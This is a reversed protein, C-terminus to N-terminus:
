IVDMFTKEAKNFLIVGLCLILVSSISSYSFYNWNMLGANAGFLAVRFTELLDSVPNILIILKYKSALSLSLPYIVPSAYMLLQIAFAALFILDRFRTTLSSVILGMGLGLFGVLVLIVPVLLTIGSLHFDKGEFLWYYLMIVLVVSFQISFNLLNILLTALPSILRPFYVKGFLNANITFTTSGKTFCNSFFNWLTLGSMYFLIPPVEDGIPIRAVRGFIMMFIITTLIPQLIFWLPGLITQKYVAVFDRQVFMGLLDRYRWIDRLPISFWTGKPKIEITWREPSSIPAKEM